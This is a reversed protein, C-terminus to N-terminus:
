NGQYLSHSAIYGAVAPPVLSAIDEGRAARARIVTASEPRQPLDIRVLEAGAVHPLAETGRLVVCVTALRVIDAWEHWSTFAAAQDGGIVLFLEPTGSEHHLERLTDITYTPGARRVERDDVVVRALAGFALRAMALRHEPASPQVNRHWAHGTPVIRLEDLQLQAIAAQAIAVHANHPPDFAGGFMGLKL